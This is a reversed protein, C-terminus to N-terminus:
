DGAEILVGGRFVSRLRGTGPDISIIPDEVAQLEDNIPLGIPYPMTNYKRAEAKLGLGLLSTVRQEECITRLSIPADMYGLDLVVQRASIM